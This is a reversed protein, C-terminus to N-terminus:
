RRSGRGRSGPGAARRRCRPSESSRTSRSANNEKCDTWEESRGPNGGRGGAKKSRRDRGPGCRRRPASRSPRPSEELKKMVEAVGRELQPDRGDLVSKSTTRSWSTPTSATGKSSGSARAALRLRGRPRLGPRRRDDPRPQHHGGRRGLHPQRDASRAELERFMAPFIDGDSAPTRTSCAPWRATSSAQPYPQPTPTAHPRLGRALLKRALREILM